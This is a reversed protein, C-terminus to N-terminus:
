FGLERLPRSDDGVQELTIGLQECLITRVRWAIEDDSMGIPSTARLSMDRMTTCSVPIAKAFRRAILLALVFVPLSIWGAWATKLWLIAAAAVCVAAGFSIWASCLSLDLHPLRLGAERLQRWVRRRRARPILADLSASPRIQRRSLPLAALLARRIQYFTRSTPCVEADGHEATRVKNTVLAVLDGVTRMEGAEEDHINVGLQDELEMVLEVGDLGM